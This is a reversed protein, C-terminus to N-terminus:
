RGWLLESVSTLVLSMAAVGRDAGVLPLGSSQTEGEGGKPGGVAGTTTGTGSRTACSGAGGATRWRLLAFEGGEGFWPEGRFLDDLECLGGSM